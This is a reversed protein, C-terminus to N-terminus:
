PRAIQVYRRLPNLARFTTASGSLQTVAFGIRALTAPLDRDQLVCTGDSATTCTIAEARHSFRATVQVGPQVLDRDDHVTVTVSASWLADGTRRATPTLQAVQVDRATPFPLPRSPGAFLLRDTSRLANAVLGPSAQSWLQSRVQAPTLKPREQLLLAAAGAVYPASMSTGSRTIWGQPDAHSAAQIASGPAFLDVCRGHNSFAARADTATSSAVTLADPTRAPSQLCADTNGNGAAVAVTFGAEVLRAVATDFTASAVSGLSINVVGPRQGHALIWDLGQLVGALSGQGSCNLVRVPVLTVGPAVGAQQGGAISAVHTGHGNCDLTGRGDRVSDHGQIALRPGFDQHPHIGSDVVYVHVGQGDFSNRFRQDLPRQRQDIRDLGWFQEGVVRGASTRAAVSIAAATVLRDPDIRLVGPDDRLRQLLRSAQATPVTTSFGQLAHTYHRQARAGPIGSVLQEALSRVTREAQSQAQAQGAALSRASHQLQQAMAAPSLTVLLHTTDDSPPLDDATTRQDQQLRTLTAQESGPGTEVTLPMTDPDFSGTHDTGGCATLVVATATATLAVATGRLRRTTFPNNM